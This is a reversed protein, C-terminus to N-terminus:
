PHIYSLVGLFCINFLSQVLPDFNILNLIWCLQPFNDYWVLLFLIKVLDIILLINMHFNRLWIAVSKIQIQYDDGVWEINLIM